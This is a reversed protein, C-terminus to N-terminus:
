PPPASSVRSATAKADATRLHDALGKQLEERGLGFEAGVALAFLANVAQHRGLLNVRYRGDLDFFPSKVEFTSGLGDVRIATARWDNTDTTGLRIVRAHARQVVTDCWDGDGGIFLKGESVIPSAYIGGGIPASWLETLHKV